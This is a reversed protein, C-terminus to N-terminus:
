GTSVQNHGGHRAQYLADDAAKVLARAPQRGVPTLTAVGVSVTVCNSVASDLHEIQLAAVKKRCREALAMGNANTDPLLVVFEKGGFRAVQDASRNISLTLAKVVQQLCYDGEIHGYHDNYAKFFDVDIILLTIPYKGRTARSWERQLNEEFYRRNAVGTLYDTRSLRDLEHHAKQLEDTRQEVVNQVMVFRRQMIFLYFALILASSIGMSLVWYKNSTDKSAFFEDTPILTVDLNSIARNSFTTSAAYDKDLVGSKPPVDWVIQKTAGHGMTVSIQLKDGGPFDDFYHTLLSFDVLFVLYSDSSHISGDSLIVSANLPVALLLQLVPHENAPNLLDQMSPIFRMSVNNDAIKLSAFMADLESFSSLDWGLYDAASDSDNLYIVPHYFPKPSAPIFGAPGAYDKFFFSPKGARMVTEFFPRQEATVLPIWFLADLDPYLTIANKSLEKFRGQSIIPSDEFMSVLARTLSIEKNTSFAMLSNWRELNANLETTVLRKQAREIEVSVAVTIAIGIFTILIPVLFKRLM